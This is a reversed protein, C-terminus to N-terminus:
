YLCTYEGVITVNTQSQARIDDLAPTVILKAECAYLHRGSVTTNVVLVSTSVARQLGDESIMVIHNMDAVESVTEAPGGDVSRMWIITKNIAKPVGMVQSSATCTLMFGNFGPLDIIRSPVNNRDIVVELTPVTRSM